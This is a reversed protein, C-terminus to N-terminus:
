LSSFSVLLSAMATGTYGYRYSFLSLFLWTLIAWMIMFKTTTTIKGIANFANTLPTTVAAIAYSIVYFKLPTLAPRWQGYKPILNIFDPSILWIGALAPFVFLAIYYISRQLSRALIEPHGQLRSFTPFTVKMIADMFSLPIRPGKQAWSLLGFADRGIIGAVM